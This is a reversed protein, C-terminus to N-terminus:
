TSTAQPSANEPSFARQTSLKGCVKPSTRMPLNQSQQLRQSTIEFPLIRNDNTIYQGKLHNKEGFQETPYDKPLPLKLRQIIAANGRLM